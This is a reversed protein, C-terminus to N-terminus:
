DLEKPRSKATWLIGGLAALGALAYAMQWKLKLMGDYEASALFGFVCFATFGTLLTISLIRAIFNMAAPQHM